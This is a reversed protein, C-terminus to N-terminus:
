IAGVYASFANIFENKRARSIPILEGHVLVENGKIQEVYRLNVLFSNNCRAFNKSMTAECDRMTGRVSFEGIASHVSLYHRIVEIYFIKNEKIKIMGEQTNFIITKNSHLLIYRMAKRLKLVFDEYVIPKLVYDIADVEYGNIAYQGTKTIFMITVEKNVERIKRAADVGNISNDMIIDLLFLNVRDIDPDSAFFKDATEYRTLELEHNERDFFRKLCDETIKAEKDDDEILCVNVKM